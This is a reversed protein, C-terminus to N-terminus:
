VRESQGHMYLMSVFTKDSVLLVPLFCAVGALVATLASMDAGEGTVVESPFLVKQWRVCTLMGHDSQGQHDISHQLCAHM